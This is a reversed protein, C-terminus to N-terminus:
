QPEVFAETSKIMVALSKATQERRSRSIGSILAEELEDLAVLAQRVIAEGEPTVRLTVSRRDTRSRRRSVLRKEYLRQVTRSIFSQELTVHPSLEGATIPAREVLAVLIQYEAPTINYPALVEALCREIIAGLDIIQLSLFQNSSRM